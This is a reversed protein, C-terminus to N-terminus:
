EPLGLHNLYRRVLRDERRGCRLADLAAMDDHLVMELGLASIQMRSNPGSQRSIGHKRCLRKVTDVSLGARNAAQKLIIIEEPKMLVPVPTGTPPTSSIGSQVMPKCEELAGGLPARLTKTDTQNQDANGEGTQDGTETEQRKYISLTETSNRYPIM